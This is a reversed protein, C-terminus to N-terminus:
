ERAGGCRKRPCSALVRDKARDTSPSWLYLGEKASGSSNSKSNEDPAQGHRRNEKDTTLLLPASIPSRFGKKQNPRGKGGEKKGVYVEAVSLPRCAPQFLNRGDNVPTKKGRRGFSRYFGTDESVKGHLTHKGLQERSEKGTLAHTLIGLTSRGRVTRMANSKEEGRLPRNYRCRARGWCAHPSQGGGGGQYREFHAEKRIIIGNISEGRSSNWAQHIEGKAFIVLVGRKRPQVREDQNTCYLREWPRVREHERAQM